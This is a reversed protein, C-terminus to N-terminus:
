RALRDRPTGPNRSVISDAVALAWSKPAAAPTAPSAGHAVWALALIAGTTGLTAFM